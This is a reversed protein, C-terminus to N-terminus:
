ACRRHLLSEAPLYLRNEPDRWLDNMSVSGLNRGENIYNDRLRVQLPPSYCPAAPGALGSSLSPPITLM